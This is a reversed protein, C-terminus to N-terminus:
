GKHHKLRLVVIRAKAAAQAAVSEPDEPDHWLLYGKSNTQYKAIQRIQRKSVGFARALSSITERNRYRARIERVQELNFKVKGRRQNESDTVLEIHWPNM